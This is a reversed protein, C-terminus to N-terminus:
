KVRNQDTSIMNHASINMFGRPEGESCSVAAWLEGQLQPARAKTVTEGRCIEQGLSSGINM